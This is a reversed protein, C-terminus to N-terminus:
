IPEFLDLSLTANDDKYVVNGNEDIISLEKGVRRAKYVKGKEVGRESALAEVEWVAESLDIINDLNGGWRLYDKGGDVFVGQNDETNKFCSCAIWDHRNKSEIIDGCNKCQIKNHIIM